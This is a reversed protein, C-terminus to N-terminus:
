RDDSDAPEAKDDEPGSFHQGHGNYPRWEDPELCTKQKEFTTAILVVGQAGDLKSQMITTPDCSILGIRAQTCILVHGM